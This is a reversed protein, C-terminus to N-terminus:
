MPNNLPNAYPNRRAATLAEAPNTYEHDILWQDVMTQTVQNAAFKPMAAAMAGDIQADMAAETAEDNWPNLHQRINTQIAPDGLLWGMTLDVYQATQTPIREAVIRQQVWDDTPKDPVAPPNTALIYAAWRLLGSYQRDRCVPQRPFEAYLDYM